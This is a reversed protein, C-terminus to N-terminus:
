ATRKHVALQCAKQEREREREREREYIYILLFKGVKKKNELFVPDGQM